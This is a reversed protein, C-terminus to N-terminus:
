LGNWEYNRWDWFYVRAREMQTCYKRTSPKRHYFYSAESCKPLAAQTKTAAVLNQMRM